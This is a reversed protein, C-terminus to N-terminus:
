RKYLRPRGVPRRPKLQDALERARQLRMRLLRIGENHAALAIDRQQVAERWAKEAAEVAELAMSHETIKEIPVPKPRNEEEAEMQEVMADIDLGAFRDSTTNM